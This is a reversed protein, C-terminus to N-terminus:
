RQNWRLDGRHWAVNRRVDEGAASLWVRPRWATESDMLVLGAGVLNRATQRRKRDVSLATDISVARKAQSGDGWLDDLLQRQAKSLEGYVPM